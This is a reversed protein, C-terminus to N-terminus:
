PRSVDLLAVRAFCRQTREGCFVLAFRALVPQCGAAEGYRREKIQRLAEELREDLKDPDSEYKYEFVITLKKQPLDIICDARGTSTSVEARPALGAGCLHAIILAAVMAESNIPYQEYPLAHFLANFYTKIREADLSALIEVTKSTYDKTYLDRKNFLRVAMLNAFAMRIEKNPCYLYVDNDPDYPRKLTLYGTQSLIAYPNAEPNVLSSQLFQSPGIRFVGSSFELLMQRLDIRDLTVKLLQPMGLGEEASWYSRLKAESDSFFRLVSWTSFVRSSDKGDFSYGDYWEAMEDLLQEVQQATVEEYCCGARVAAAYRLHEAFSLKLEDRTYGCCAAFAPEQSIDTFNNGATGMGLDQYRTIGTFFVCRFKRSNFKVMGFLCRLVEKCAKLEQANSFHHLLPFDYEDVLLVLSADPLQGLMNDLQIRLNRPNEPVVFQYETCFSTIEEMLSREFEAVTDCLLNLKYFDLYLVPYDAHDHWTKEIALGKFYSDHGDYPEVGHLFLEELTSLLTSKGFRRPRTLIRPRRNEALMYVYSTKDVYEAGDRRLESFSQYSTPLRNNLENFDPM